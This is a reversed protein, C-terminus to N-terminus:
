KKAPPRAKRILAAATKADAETEFGFVASFKRGITQAVLFNMNIGADAIARAMAHGIGPRNDGEVLLTPITSASLGADGAATTAKKGSVPYLELIAQDEGGPQRYGMVVQLDAGARALPELTEALAGPRNEVERRWLTISRVKIAM